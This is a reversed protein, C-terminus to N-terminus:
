EYRAGLAGLPPRPADRDLDYGNFWPFRQEWKDGIWADAGPDDFSCKAGVHFPTLEGFWIEGRVSYLDVRIHDFGRSLDYAIEVADSLNAPLKPDTEHRDTGSAKFPLRVGDSGFFSHKHDEFRGTNIQMFYDFSGDSGHFCFFKLDDPSQPGGDGLHEEAIICNWEGRQRRANLKTGIQSNFHQCTEDWDLAAKDEVILNLGSAYSSKLVFRDPLLDFDGPELAPTVLYRKPIRVRDGVAQRVFSPVLHKYGILPYIPDSPGTLRVLLKESFTRPSVLDPERKMVRRWHALVQDRRSPTGDGRVVQKQTM